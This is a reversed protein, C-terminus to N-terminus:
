NKATELFTYLNDFKSFLIKILRPFETNFNDKVIFADAGADSALKRYEPNDYFSLMIIKTNFSSNSLQESLEISSPFTLDILIIQPQIKEAKKVADAGNSSVATIPIEFTSLFYSLIKAKFVGDEDILLISKIKM